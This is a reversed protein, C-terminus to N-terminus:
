GPRCMRKLHIIQKLTIWYTAVRKRAWTSVGERRAHFTVPVEIIESSKERATLLLQADFVFTRMKEHPLFNLLDRHFMKPLGNVDQVRLNLIFNVLFTYVKSVFQTSLPDKRITRRGKVFITRRIGYDSARQYVDWVKELDEPHVQLDGPIYSLVDAKCHQFGEFIGGGYNLNEKLQVTQIWPHKTALSSILGSTNDTSGNNILIVERLGRNPLGSQDLTEMLREINNGENFLPIVLGFQM